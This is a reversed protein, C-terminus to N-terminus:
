KVQLSEIYNVLNNIRLQVLAQDGHSLSRFVPGWVPMEKSGHAPLNADGAITQKVSAAPFKGGNRHSLMTLDTPTVKLAPAAPGDGKGTKGHCTACYSTYMEAGSAPSTQPATKKEITPKQAFSTIVLILAAFLSAALIRRSM